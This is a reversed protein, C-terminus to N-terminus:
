SKIYFFRVKYYKTRVLFSKSILWFKVHKIIFLTFINAELRFNIYFIQANENILMKRPFVVNIRDDCFNAFHQASQLAVGSQVEVLVISYRYTVLEDKDLRRDQQRPGPM